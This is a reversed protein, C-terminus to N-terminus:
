IIINNECQSSYLDLNKSLMETRKSIYNKHPNYSDTLLYKCKRLAVSILLCESSIPETLSLKAPVDVRVYM